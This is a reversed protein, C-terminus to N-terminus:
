VHKSSIQETNGFSKNREHLSQHVQRLLYLWILTPYFSSIFPDRIM